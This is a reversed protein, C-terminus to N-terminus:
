ATVSRRLDAKKGVECNRVMLLLLDFKKEMQTELYEALHLIQSLRHGNQWADEASLVDWEHKSFGTGLANFMGDDVQGYFRIYEDQDSIVKEGLLALTRKQAPNM